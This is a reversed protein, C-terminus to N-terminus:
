RRASAPPATSAPPQASRADASTARGPLYRVTTIIAVAAVAACILMATSMGHLFATGAATRLAHGGSRLRGAIQAAQTISARVAVAIAGGVQRLASNVSAGIGAEGGGAAAMVADIAAGM